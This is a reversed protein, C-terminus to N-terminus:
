ASLDKVRAKADIIEPLTQDADKWYRLFKQYNLRAQNSDGLRQYAQGMLYFSRPLLNFGPSGNFNDQFARLTEVAKQAQGTELYAIALQMTRASKHDLNGKELL